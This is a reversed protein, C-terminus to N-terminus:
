IKSVEVYVRVCIWVSATHFNEMCFVSRGMFNLNLIKFNVSKCFHVPSYIKMEVYSLFFGCPDFTKNKTGRGKSHSRHCLAVDKQAKTRENIFHFYKDKAEKVSPNHPELLIHLVTFFAIKCTYAYWM